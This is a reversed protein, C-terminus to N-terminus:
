WWHLSCSAVEDCESNTRVVVSWVTCATAYGLFLKTKKLDGRLCFMIRTHFFL